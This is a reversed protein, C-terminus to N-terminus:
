WLCDMYFLSAQTNETFEGMLPIRPISNIGELSFASVWYGMRLRWVGEFPLPHGHELRKNSYWRAKGAEQMKDQQNKCSASADHKNNQVASKFYICYKIVGFIQLVCGSDCYHIKNRFCNSNKQKAFLQKNRILTSNVMQRVNKNQYKLM